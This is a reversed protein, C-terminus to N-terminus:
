FWGRQGSNDTWNLQISNNTITGFTLNTPAAPVNPLTTASGSAYTASPGGSNYAYVRYYYATNSTLGTNNFTTVGAGTTGVSTYPGGASLSRYIEFGDENGSNDTWNLQISNNTITGFTLNTPAAPVNPLTTASGSAYTASAGGTNYAYVRYYYVTNSTLGTNNFTTVGAGTTGVSTYPGGATLSRFIEFGDENGSNDTWNLQISNNTITGFTLSTPAAPVNPLTTASGSAYTASTGEANYAYVRYFYTTGPDLGNDTYSTVNSTVVDIESYGSGPSLSREIRYGTENASNETWSLQISNMDVTTASLATPAGPISTLYTDLADFWTQAMKGYASPQPHIGDALMETAYDIGAGDEMDVMIINPDGRLAVMAEVNNNFQTTKLSYVARNIIRAVFVVITRDNAAEWADIEDLILSIQSPDTSAEHTMDNTGIHLLIIDPPYVDLYPQSGPTIQILNRLDYGDQLLRVVYQDRTGPIGGHSAESFIDYGSWGHGIFDFDHGASNLLTYLPFRYAVRSGVPPTTADDGETISNGLPLIQVQAKSEGAVMLFFVPILFILVLHIYQKM